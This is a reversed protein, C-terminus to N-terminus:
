DAKKHINRSSIAELGVPIMSTAAANEDFPWLGRQQQQVQEHSKEANGDDDDSCSATVLKKGLILGLIVRGIVRCLFIFGFTSQRVTVSSSSYPKTKGLLRDKYGLVLSPLFCIPYQKLVQEYVLCVGVAPVQAGIPTGCEKCYIRLLPTGERIKVAGIVPSIDTADDTINIDGNGGCAHGRV